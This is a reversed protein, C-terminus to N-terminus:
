GVAGFRDISAEGGDKREGARPKKTAVVVFWDVSNQFLNGDIEEFAEEDRQGRLGAAGGVDGSDEGRWGAGVDRSGLACGHTQTPEPCKAEETVPVSADDAAVEVFGEMGPRALEPLERASCEPHLRLGCM